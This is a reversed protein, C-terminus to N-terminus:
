RKWENYLLNTLNVATNVCQKIDADNTTPYKTVCASAIEKFLEWKEQHERYKEYQTEATYKDKYYEELDGLVESHDVAAQHEAEELRERAKKYPTKTRSKMHNNYSLEKVLTLDKKARL